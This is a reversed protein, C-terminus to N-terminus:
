ATAGGNALVTPIVEFIDTTATAVADSSMTAGSILAQEGTWTDATLGQFGAKYSPEDLTYADFYEKFLILEDATMSVIAGTNDVVIYVTMPMSSYGYSRASIGFYIEEGVTIRFAESVTSFVNELTVPVIETADAMMAQFRKMDADTNSVINAATHAMAEDKM